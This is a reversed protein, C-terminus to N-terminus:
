AYGILLHIRNEYKSGIFQTKKKGLGIQPYGKKNGKKHQKAALGDKIHRV